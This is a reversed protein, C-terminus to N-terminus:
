SLVKDSRICIILFLNLIGNILVYLFMFFITLPTSKIFETLRGFHDSLATVRVSVDDM